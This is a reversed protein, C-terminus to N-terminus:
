LGAAKLLKSILHIRQVYAGHEEHFEPWVKSCEAFLGNWEYDKVDSVTPMRDNDYDLPIDISDADLPFARVDHKAIGLTNRSPHYSVQATGDPLTSEHQRDSLQRIIISYSVVENNVVVTVRAPITLTKKVPMCVEEWPSESGGKILFEHAEEISDVKYDEWDTRGFQYAFVGGDNDCAAFSNTFHEGTRHIWYWGSFDVYVEWGERLKLMTM